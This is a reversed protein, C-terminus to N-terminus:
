AKWAHPWLRDGRSIEAPVPQIRCVYSVPILIVLMLVVTTAIMLMVNPLNRFVDNAVMVAVSANRAGHMSAMALRTGSEPWGLLYGTGFGPSSALPFDGRVLRFGDLADAEGNRRWM